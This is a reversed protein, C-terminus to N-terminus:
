INVPMLVSFTNTDIILEISTVQGIQVGKFAVPAGISLGKVNGDFVLLATEREAGFGGRSIFVAAGRLILLAGIVFLGIALTSPQKNM